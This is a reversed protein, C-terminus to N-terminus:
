STAARDRGLFVAADVVTFLWMLMMLYSADAVRPRQQLWCVGSLGMVAAVVYGGAMLGYLGRRLSSLTAPRAQCAYSTGLLACALFLAGWKIRTFVELHHIRAAVEPSQLVDGVVKTLGFLEYNELYDGVLMVPCLVLGIVMFRRAWGPSFAGGLFWFFMANLLTYAPILVCDVRNVADLAARMKVGAASTGAPLIDALERPSHVLEFWVRTDMARFGPNTAAGPDLKPVKPIFLAVVLTIVGLVVVALAARARPSRASLWARVSL